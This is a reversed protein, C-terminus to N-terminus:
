WVIEMCSANLGSGIGMLLVRDGSTLDDVEGALTFPVSVPGINGRTPFTRPVRDSDIGLKDCLADTHVQSVQHIAYRDMGADWDFEQIAETWLDVSLQLGADLLGKLDTRMLDNDGVCLEHHETGARSVAAVVRHGEPHQDARGLVMAVAGSGLTLTAFQAIVDKATVDPGRLREITAEQVGRADEGDVVLAYDIFGADIMAGAIEIGNVFGLCANTVDFNQCSTPLGVADHVSVATAPELYQRSVSTNVMLGFSAPDVGSESIAKEAAMAAGDAFSVGDPWWRRARIGALRELLGPRLGVRAYTDALQEDLEDSTVIRSADARSVSLIATNNFRHTTNGYVHLGM